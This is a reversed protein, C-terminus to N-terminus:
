SREVEPRFNQSQGLCHSLSAKLVSRDGGM